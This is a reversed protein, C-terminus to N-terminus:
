AAKGKGKGKGGGGRVMVPPNFRAWEEIADRQQQPSGRFCWRPNVLIVYTSLRRVFGHKRLIAFLDSVRQPRLGLEEGFEANSCHILGTAVSAKTAVSIALRYGDAPLRLEILRKADILAMTLYGGPYAFRVGQKKVPVLRVMGNTDLNLYHQSDDNPGQNPSNRAKSGGAAPNM